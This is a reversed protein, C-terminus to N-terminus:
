PILEGATFGETVDTIRVRVPEGKPSPRGPVTVEIGNATLIEAGDAAPQIVLGDL